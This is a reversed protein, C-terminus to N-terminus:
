FDLKLYSYGKKFSLYLFAGRIINLVLKVQTIYSLKIDPIHKVISPFVIFVKKLSRTFVTQRFIEFMHTFVIRKTTLDMRDGFKNFLENKVYLNSKLKKVNNVISNSMNEGHCGVKVLPIDTFSYNESIALVRIHFDYDQSQTLGENFKLHHKELFSRKWLPAQTLWFITFAVFDQFIDDSKLKKARLGLEEGSSVDYMMSQCITYDFTTQHLLGMQIELKKPLMLDDSDFWNIYKGKSQEFGYNRSANGGRLRDKPRHHYQFRVDKLSYKKILEATNDTSGDDVVLCEWNQYTQALVSDLTEGILHARNFTPIIISILPEKFDM